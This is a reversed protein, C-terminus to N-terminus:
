KALPDFRRVIKTLREGPLRGIVQRLFTQSPDRFPLSALM